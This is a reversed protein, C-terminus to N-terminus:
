SEYFFRVRAPRGRPDDILACTIRHTSEIVGHTERRRVTSCRWTGHPTRGTRTGVRPKRAGDATFQSILGGAEACGTHGDYSVDQYAGAGYKFHCAHALGSYSAANAVTIQSAVTIMAAVIALLSRRVHRTTTPLTMGPPYAFRTCLGKALGCTKPCASVQGHRAVQIREAASLSWWRGRPGGAADARDALQRSLDREAQRPLTGTYRVRGVACRARSRRNTDLAIL